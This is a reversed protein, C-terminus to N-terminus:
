IDSLFPHSFGTLSSVFESACFEVIIPMNDFYERRFRSYICNPSAHYFHARMDKSLSMPALGSIKSGIQRIYRERHRFCLTDRKNLTKFLIENECQACIIKRDARTLYFDENNELISENTARTSIPASPPARKLVESKKRGKRDNPISSSINVINRHRDTFM